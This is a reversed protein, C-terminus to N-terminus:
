LNGSTQWVWDNIAGRPLTIFADKVKTGTVDMRYGYHLRAITPIGNLPIQQQWDLAHNTPYNSARLNDDLLKFRVIVREDITIYRQFQEINFVIGKDEALIAHAFSYWFQNLIHARCSDDLTIHSFALEGNWLQECQGLANSFKQMRSKLTTVANELSITPEIM